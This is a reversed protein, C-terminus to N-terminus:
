VYQNGGLPASVLYQDPEEIKRIKKTMKRLQFVCSVTCMV